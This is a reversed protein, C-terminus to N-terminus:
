ELAQGLHSFLPVVISTVVLTWLSLIQVALHFPENAQLGGCEAVRFVGHVGVVLHLDDLCLEIQGVASIFVAHCESNMLQLSKGLRTPVVVTIRVGVRHVDGPIFKCLSKTVLVHGALNEDLLGLVEMGHGLIYHPNFLILAMEYLHHPVGWIVGVSILLLLEPKVAAQVVSNALNHCPTDKRQKAVHHVM